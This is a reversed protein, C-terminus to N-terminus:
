NLICYQAGPYKHEYHQILKNRFVMGFGKYDSYNHLEDIREQFTRRAGNMHTLYSELVTLFMVDFLNGMIIFVVNMYHQFTTLDLYDYQRSSIREFHDSYIDFAGTEASRIGFQINACTAWHWCIIQCGLVEMLKFFVNSIGYRRGIKSGSFAIFIDREDGLRYICVLHLVLVVHYDNFMVVLIWPFGVLIDAILKGASLQRKIVTAPDTVLGDFTIIATKTRLYLDITTVITALLSAFWLWHIPVSAGLDYPITFALVVIFLNYIANWVQIGYSKPHFFYPAYFTHGLDPEGPIQEAYYWWVPDFVKWGFFRYISERYETGDSFESIVPDCMGRRAEDIIRDLETAFEPEKEIVNEVVKEVVKEAVKKQQLKLISEKIDAVNKLIDPFLRLQESLQKNIDAANQYLGEIHKPDSM